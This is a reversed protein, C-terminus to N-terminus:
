KYKKENFDINDSTKKNDVKAKNINLLDLHEQMYTSGVHNLTARNEKDKLNQNIFNDLETYVTADSEVLFGKNKHLMFNGVHGTLGYSNKSCTVNFMNSINYFDCAEYYLSKRERDGMNVKVLPNVELIYRSNASIASSGRANLSSMGINDNQQKTAHHLFLITVNYKSAIDSFKKIFLASVNNSIELNEDGSSSLTDIVILKINKNSILANELQQWAPSDKKSNENMFGGGLYFNYDLDFVCHLKNNISTLEDHTLNFQTAIKKVRNIVNIQKDEASIYLCEFDEITELNEISMLKRNICAQIMLTLAFYSKGGGGHGVILGVVGRPVKINNINFIFPTEEIPSLLNSLGFNVVNLSKSKKNKQQSPSATDVRHEYFHTVISDYLQKYEESEKNNLACESAFCTISIGYEYLTILLNKGSENEHNKILCPSTIWYDIKDKNTTNEKVEISFNYNNDFNFKDLKFEVNACRIIKTKNIHEVEQTQNSVSSEVQSNKVEKTEYFQSPFEKIGANFNFNYFLTHGDDTVKKFGHICAKKRGTLFEVKKIKTIKQKKGVIKFIYKARIGVRNGKNDVNIVKATNISDLFDILSHDIDAETDYDIDVIIFENSPIIALTKCKEAYDKFRLNNHQFKDKSLTINLVGDFSLQGRAPVFFLDNIHKQFVEDLNKDKISIVDGYFCANNHLYLNWSNKIQETIDENNFDSIEVIQGSDFYASLEKKNLLICNSIELNNIDNINTFKYYKHEGTENKSIFTNYVQKGTFLNNLSLINIRENTNLNAFLNGKQTYKLKDKNAVSYARNNCDKHVVNLLETYELEIGKYNSTNHLGEYIHTLLIGDTNLEIIDEKKIHFDRIMQLLILQGTLTVALLMNKDHKDLLGFVSNIFLKLANCTQVDEIKDSSKLDIRTKIIERIQNLKEDSFINLVHAYINPYYSSFDYNHAKKYIFLGQKNYHIGGRKILFGEKTMVQELNPNDVMNYALELLDDDVNLNYIEQKLNFGSRFLQGSHLWDSIVKRSGVAFSNSKPFLISQLTDASEQSKEGFDIFLKATLLLDTQCYDQLDTITSAKYSENYVYNYHLFSNVKLSGKSGMLVFTDVTKVEVNKFKISYHIQKDKSTFYDDNYNKIEETTRQSSVCFSLISNDYSFCNYGILARDKISTLYDKLAQTDTLDIFKTERTTLDLFGCFQGVDTLEIDFVVYNRAYDSINLDEIKM